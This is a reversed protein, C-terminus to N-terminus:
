RLIRRARSKRSYDVKDCRNTAKLAFVQNKSVVFGSRWFFEQTGADANITIHEVVTGGSLGTIDVGTQFTGDGTASNPSNTYHNAPTTDTGGVPTGTAGLVIQIEEDTTAAKCRLEPVVLLKSPHSNLMYVFYDGAGTPTKDFLLTYCDQDSENTELEQYRIISDTWARGKDACVRMGAPLLPDFIRIDM